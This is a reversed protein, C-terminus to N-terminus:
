RRPIFREVGSAQIWGSASNGAECYLWDGSVSRIRVREGPSMSASVPSSDAPAFRLSAKANVVVAADPDAPDWGGPRLFNYVGGGAAAIALCVLVIGWPSRKGAFSLGAIVIVIWASALLICAATHRSWLVYQKWDNTGQKVPAGVTNRTLELNARAERHSPQLALAREFNLTARGYDGDRYYADGLNFFLNANTQGNAIATEYEAAAEKFKGEGFLRNGKEFEASPSAAGAPLIAAGLFLATLTIVALRNM